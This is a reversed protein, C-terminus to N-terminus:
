IVGVKLLENFIIKDLPKSTDISIFDVGLKKCYSSIDDIISNLTEEYSNHLSSTVKLRINKNDHLLTSESDILNMRGLYLPNIEDESLVQILLVQSGKHVLFEISKKWDNDTLFDSVIISFNNQIKDVNTLIADSIYSDCDLKVSELLPIKEYFSKKGVIVGSIDILKKEEIIKYSVKDMNHIALYGIGASLAFAYDSKKSSIPGMSSSADIYFDISMQKEDRFLKIYHKELRSYLNWDIKRIDDGLIYERYDAFEVTQGYANTQHKGGFFGKLNPKLNITQSELMNFFASNIYPNKM